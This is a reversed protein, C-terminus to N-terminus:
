IHICSLNLRFFDFSVLSLILPISLSLSPTASGAEKRNKTGPRGRSPPRCSQEVLVVVQLRFREQGPEVAQWILSWRGGGVCLRRTRWCGRSDLPRRRRQLTDPDTRAQRAEQLLRRHRPPHPHEHLHPHLLAPASDPLLRSLVAGYSREQRGCLHVDAPRGGDAGPLSDQIVDLQRQPPVPSSRFRPSPPAPPPVIGLAKRDGGSHNQM